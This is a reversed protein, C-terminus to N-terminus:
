LVANTGGVSGDPMGRRALLSFTHPLQRLAEPAVDPFQPWFHEPHEELRLLTLGAAALGSVVEGLTWQRELPRRSRQGSPATRALSRGAFDENGRSARAFYDGDPRLRLKAREPEWIWNLPHGEFVYLHGGPRLLQSVARAWAGLDDIWPMAGKGTYVVDATGALEAPPALVGACYWTAPAGLSAGKRRARALMAESSDVGVVERAGLLWLSLTDTGHSCQLHIARRCGALLPTLYHRESALLSTSGSRLATVEREIDPACEAAVPDRADQPTQWRAGCGSSLM